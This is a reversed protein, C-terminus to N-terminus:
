FARVCRVEFDNEKALQHFDESLRAWASGYYGDDSESFELLIKTTFDGVSHAKLETYM